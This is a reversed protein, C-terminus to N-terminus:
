KSSPNPPTIAPGSKSGPLGPIKASDQERIEENHRDQGLGTTGTSPNATPGSEVGPQGPIGAGSNQASPITAQGTGSPAAGQASPTGPIETVATVADPNIVLMVPNGASDKARVLFSTPMIQIDTFGARQLNNRVQEQVTQVSGANTAGQQQNPQANQAWVPTTLVFPLATLIVVARM